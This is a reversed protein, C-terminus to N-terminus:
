WTPCITNIPFTNHLSLHFESEMGFPFEFSYLVSFNPLGFCLCCKVSSYILLFFLQFCCPTQMPYASTCLEVNAISNFLFLFHLKQAEIERGFALICGTYVMKPCSSVCNNFLLGIFLLAKTLSLLMIPIVEIIRKTYQTNM